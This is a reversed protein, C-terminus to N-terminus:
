STRLRVTTDQLQLLPTSTVRWDVGFLQVVAATGGQTM